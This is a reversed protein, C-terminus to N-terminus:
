VRHGGRQAKECQDKRKGHIDFKEDTEDLVIRWIGSKVPPYSNTKSKERCIGDREVRGRQERGKKLNIDSEKM